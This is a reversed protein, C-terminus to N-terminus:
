WVVIQNPLKSAYIGCSYPLLQSCQLENVNLTDLSMKSKKLRKKGQLSPLHQIFRSTIPLWKVPVIGGSSATRVLKIPMLTALFPRVPVIGGASNPSDVKDVSTSTLVSQSRRGAATLKVAHEVVDCAMQSPRM